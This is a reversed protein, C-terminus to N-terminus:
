NRRTQPENLYREVQQEKIKKYLKDSIEIIETYGAGTNECIIVTIIHTPLAPQLFREEIFVIKGFDIAQIVTNNFRSVSEYMSQPKDIVPFKCNVEIVVYQQQPQKGLIEHILKGEIVSRSYSGDNIIVVDGKKM